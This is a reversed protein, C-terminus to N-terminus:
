ARHAPVPFYVELAIAAKAEQEVDEEFYRLARGGGAGLFTQFQLKHEGFPSADLQAKLYERFAPNRLARAFQRALREPKQPTGGTLAAEPNLPTRDGCATLVGAAALTGIILIRHLM